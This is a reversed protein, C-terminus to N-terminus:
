CLVNTDLVCVLFLLVDSPAECFGWGLPPKPFCNSFCTTGEDRTPSSEAVSSLLRVHHPGCPAMIGAPNCMSLQM